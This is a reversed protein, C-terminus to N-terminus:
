IRWDIPQRQHAQLFDNTKSFPKSGFFGHYASLPSPHPAKLILHKRHTILFEKSQAHKGWLIFVIPQPHQDCKRIVEDTFIEWGKQKHSTPKNEEVTMVTNLLLVGQKAWPTLYGTQPMPIQVDDVAEKYINVLSQPIKVGPRVSFACGHAQHPQHYPDQGLIVVKLASYDCYEFCSFVDKKVPYITKTQYEEKLFDALRIFYSKKFESKLFESWENQFM